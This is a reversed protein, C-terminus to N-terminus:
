NWLSEGEGEKRMPWVSKHWGAILWMAARSECDIGDCQNDVDTREHVSIPAVFLGTSSRCAATKKCELSISDIAARCQETNSVFSQIHFDDLEGRDAMEQRDEMMADIARCYVTCPSHTYDVAISQGAGETVLGLIAFVKDRPDTADSTRTRDMAEALHISSEQSQWTGIKVIRGVVHHDVWGMSLQTSVFHGTSPSSYECIMRVFEERSVFEFGCLLRANQALVFEQVIWYRKWYPLRILTRLPLRLEDRPPITCDERNAKKAFCRAEHERIYAFLKDSGEFSPGLWVVVESANSYIERMHGVQESREQIDNQNICIADIWFLASAPLVIRLHMLAAYLNEGIELVHGNVLIPRTNKANGWVYSLAIYPPCHKDDRLFNAMTVRLPSARDLACSLRLLRFSKSGADMSEYISAIPLPSDTVTDISVTDEQKTGATSAM